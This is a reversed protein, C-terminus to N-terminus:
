RGIKVLVELMESRIKTMYILCIEDNTMQAIGRKKKPQHTKHFFYNAAHAIDPRTTNPLILLICVLQQYPTVNEMIPELDSKTLYIGNPMPCTTPNCSEM